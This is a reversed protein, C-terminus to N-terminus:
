VQRLYCVQQLALMGGLVLNLEQQLAQGSLQLLQLAKTVGQETQQLFLFRGPHTLLAAFELLRAVKQLLHSAGEFPGLLPLFLLERM